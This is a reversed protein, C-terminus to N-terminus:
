GKKKKKTISLLSHAVPYTFIFDQNIVIFTKKKPIFFTISHQLETSTYSIQSYFINM